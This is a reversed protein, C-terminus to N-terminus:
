NSKTMFTEMTKIIGRLDLLTYRYYSSRAGSDVWIYRVFVCQVSTEIKLSNGLTTTTYRIIISHALHLDDTYQIPSAAASRLFRKM